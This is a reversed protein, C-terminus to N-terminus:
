KTDQTKKYVSKKPTQRAKLLRYAFVLDEKIPEQPNEAHKKQIYQLAKEIVSPNNSEKLGVIAARTIDTDPNNLCEIGLYDVASQEDLNMLAKAAEIKVLTDTDSVITKKLPECAKLDGIVGLDTACVERLAPNDHNLGETILDNTWSRRLRDIQPMVKGMTIAVSEGMTELYKNLERFDVATVEYFLPYTKGGDQVLTIDEKRGDFRFGAATLSDIYFPIKEGDMSEVDKGKVDVSRLTSHTENLTLSLVDITPPFDDPLSEHLINLIKSAYFRSYPCRQNGLEERRDVYREGKGHQTQSIVSIESAHGRGYHDAELPELVVKKPPNFTIAKLPKDVVDVPGM